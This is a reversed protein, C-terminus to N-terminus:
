RDYFELSECIIIEIGNNNRFEFTLNGMESHITPILRMLIPIKYLYNFGFKDKLKIRDVSTITRNKLRLTSLDWIQYEQEFIFFNTDAYM